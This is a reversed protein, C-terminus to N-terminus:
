QRRPPPCNLKPNSPGTLDPDCGVPWDLTKCGKGEHWPEGIKLNQKFCNDEVCFVFPLIQKAPWAMAESLPDRFDTWMMADVDGETNGQCTFTNKGTKKSWILEVNLVGQILGGNIPFALEVKDAVSCLLTRRSWPFDHFLCNNGQMTMLEFVRAVIRFGLDQIKPHHKIDFYSFKVKLAVHSDTAWEGNKSYVIQEIRCHDPCEPRDDSCFGSISPNKHAIGCAKLASYMRKFMRGKRLTGTHTADKGIRVDFRYYGDLNP